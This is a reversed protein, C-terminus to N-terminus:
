TDVGLPVAGVPFTPGRLGGSHPRDWLAAGPVGPFVGGAYDWRAAWVLLRLVADLVDMRHDTLVVDPPLHCVGRLLVGVTLIPSSVWRPCLFLAVSTMMRWRMM